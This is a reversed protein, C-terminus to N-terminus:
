WTIWVPTASPHERQGTPQFEGHADFWDWGIVTIVAVFGVAVLRVFREAMQDLDAIVGTRERWARTVSAIRIKLMGLWVVFATAGTAAIGARATPFAVPYLL